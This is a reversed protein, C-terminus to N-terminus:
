VGKYFNVMNVRFKQNSFLMSRAKGRAAFIEPNSLCERVSNFIKRPEPEILIAADGCVEQMVEIDSAVVPLGVKFAETVPIGFGEETSPFVLVDCANYIENLTENSVRSFTISDGVPVGVRVLKYRDDMLQMMDRLAKLNKGPRNTSVSLLLIKDKPLGLRVRLREKQLRLPHIFSSVPPWIVNIKGDFGSNEIEKKVSNTFTIINPVKMYYQIYRKNNNDGVYYRLGHWKMFILDHITVVVRENFIFPYIGPNTYHIISVLDDRLNCNYASKGVFYKVFRSRVFHSIDPIKCIYPVKRSIFYDFRSYLVQGPFNERTSCFGLSLSVCNVSLDENGNISEFLLQAYRGLGKNVPHDNIISINTNLM